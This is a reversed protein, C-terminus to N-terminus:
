PAAKASVVLWKLTEVGNAAASQLVMATDMTITQATVTTTATSSNRASRPSGARLKAIREPRMMATIPM